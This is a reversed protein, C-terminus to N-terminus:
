HTRRVQNPSLLNYVVPISLAIILLTILLEVHIKFVLAANTLTTYAFAILVTFLCATLWVSWVAPGQQYLAIFSWLTVILLVVEVFVHSVLSKTFFTSSGALYIALFFVVIVMWVASTAPNTVFAMCALIGASAAGEFVLKMWNEEIDTKM